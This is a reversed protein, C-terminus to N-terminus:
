GKLKCQNINLNIKLYQFEDMKVPNLVLEVKNWCAPNLTQNIPIEKTQVTSENDSKGWEANVVFSTLPVSTLNGISIHLKYGDLYPQLDELIILFPGLNTDTVSYGVGPLSPDLYAPRNFGFTVEEMEKLEIKVLRKEAEALQSKLGAIENSRDQLNVFSLISIILAIVSLMIATNIITNSQGDPEIQTEEKDEVESTNTIEFKDL